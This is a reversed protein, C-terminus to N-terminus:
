DYGYLMLALEHEPMPYKGWQLELGDVCAAYKCMYRRELNFIRVMDYMWFPARTDYKLELIVSDLPLHYPPRDPPPPIGRKPALMRGLGEDLMGPGDYPTASVQRDFTVRLEDDNAAEHIERLYSIYIMPKAQVANCFQWFEYYVDLRRKGHIMPSPDPWHSPNPWGGNLLHMVGERSIMARDKVIVDSVRRKIELFAPHKWHENYFRIRLKIRNRIGNYIQRFFFFDPSDMYLSIVPHGPVPGKGNHVSPRLYPRLFDAVAAAREEDIVYKLEYRGSQAM